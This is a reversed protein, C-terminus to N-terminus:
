QKLAVHVEPGITDEHEPHLILILQSGILIKDFVSLAQVPYKFLSSILVVM